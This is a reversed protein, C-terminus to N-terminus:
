GESAVADARQILRTFPVWGNKCRLKPGRTAFGCFLANRQAFVMLAATAPLRQDGTAMPKRLTSEACHGASMASASHVM